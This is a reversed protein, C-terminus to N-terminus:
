AMSPLPVLCSNIARYCLAGDANRDVIAVAWPTALEGEGRGPRGWTALGRGSSLEVRQVRNNGYEAVLVTGDGLDCIGYPYRFEGLGRGPHEASGIWGILRGELTFRGLRHNRSDCVLLEMGGNSSPVLMVTQPRDFQVASVEGGTGSGDRGASAAGAASEGVGAGFSGFSFLFKWDADFVSIRDNGGYEGVYFRVARERGDAGRGTLVAIDTPYIFEGPGMGYGGIRRVEAPAAAALTEGKGTAGPEVSVEGLKYVIVRHYHTDAVYMVREGAADVGITMGVPKGVETEPMRWWRLCEGTAGDVFQVRGTKDIVWARAGGRESDAGVDLELTRPYGFKGPAEGLGGVSRAGEIASPAGDGRGTDVRGCSPAAVLLAAAGCVAVMSRAAVPWARGAGRGVAM